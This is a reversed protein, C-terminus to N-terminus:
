RQAMWNRGPRPLGCRGNGAMSLWGRTKGVSIGELNPLGLPFDACRETVSNPVWVISLLMGSLGLWDEFAKLKNTVLTLDPFILGSELLNLVPQIGDIHGLSALCQILHDIRWLSQNSVKVMKLLKRCDEPLDKLRRDIM